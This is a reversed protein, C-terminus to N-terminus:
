VHARGIQESTDQPENVDNSGLVDVTKTLSDTIIADVYVQRNIFYVSLFVILLMIPIVLKLFYLERMSMNYGSDSILRENKRYERDEAPPIISDVIKKFVPSYSLVELTLKDSKVKNQQPQRICLILLTLTLIIILAVILSIIISTAM